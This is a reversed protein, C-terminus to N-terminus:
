VLQINVGGSGGCPCNKVKRTGGQCTECKRIKSMAGKVRRVSLKGAKKATDSSEQKRGV